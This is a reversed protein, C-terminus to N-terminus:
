DRVEEAKFDDLIRPRHRFTELIFIFNHILYRRWLRRPESALRFAWELGINQMWSPAQSKEGSLFDFAAGIGVFTAPFRTRYEHVFFDQKPTGLGVWVVDPQSELLMRDLTKKVESNVDGFPPAECGVILLGPFRGILEEKLRSLVQTTSGYLFHKVGTERGKDMADLMLNPGYVRGDLSKIGLSKGIWILPM